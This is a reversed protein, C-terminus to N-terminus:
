TKGLNRVFDELELAPGVKALNKDDVTCNLQINDHM